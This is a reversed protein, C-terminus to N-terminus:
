YDVRVGDSAAITTWGDDGCYAGDDAPAIERAVRIADARDTTSYHVQGCVLVRYTVATKKASITM